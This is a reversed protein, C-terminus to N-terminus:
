HHQKRNIYGILLAFLAAGALLELTNSGADPLTFNDVLHPRSGLELVILIAIQQRALFVWLMLSVLFVGLITTVFFFVM